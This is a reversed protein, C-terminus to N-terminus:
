STSCRAASTAARTTNPVSSQLGISHYLADCLETVRAALEPRVPATDARKLNELAADIAKASGEAHATLLKANAEEELALEYILRHRIYLDYYARLLCLQWRWNSKLGPAQTELGHWLAFTADVAGNTALAGDWNRELAFLGSAATEAVEPGFFVRCYETMLTNLDASRDWELASWVIKNVDDHIGDSYSIFGDTFPATDRIVRAYYVPRPNVCERGLTFAFAPDVLRRPVPLPGHAHHGSLRASSVGEAAAGASGTDEPQLAGGGPRGAVEPPGARDLSLRLGAARRSLGADLALGERHSPTEGAAAGLGCPLPDGAGGLQRRSRRGGRLRRHAHPLRPVARRAAPPLRRPPRRGEPRLRRTGLALLGARVEPLIRSIDVNMKARPYPNVTPRNDQFPIGEIANTGFIALERIYQDFQEPSWADYSNANARYGLQHGRIPYAPASTLNLPAALRVSGKRCELNRLLRGAGFLAGRADTGAIWLVPRAPDSLDTAIGYGEALTTRAREPAQRGVLADRGSILAM